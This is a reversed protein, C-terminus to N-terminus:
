REAAVARRAEDDVRDTLPHGVAALRARVHSEAYADCMERNRQVHGAPCRYIGAQGPPNAAHVGAGCVACRAISSLLHKPRTSLSKRRETAALLTAVRAADADSWLPEWAARYLTGNHVRWGAYRPNLLHKRLTGYSWAKGTGTRWGAANLRRCAEALSTGACVAELTERLAAAAKDHVRGDKRYGFPTTRQWMAEGRAARQANALRQREGKAEAEMASMAVLVRATARGEATDLRVAGGLSRIAVSEAREIMRELDIPRRALRDLRVIWVADGPQLVALLREFEPRPKRRTASADNDTFWEAVQVGPPIAKEIAERQRTVAFRDGAADLAQRRDGYTRGPSV